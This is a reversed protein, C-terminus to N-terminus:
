VSWGSVGLIEEFSFIFFGLLLQECCNSIQMLMLKRCWLQCGFFGELFSFFFSPPAFRKAAVHSGVLHCVNQSFGLGRLFEAGIMEHGVRGLNETSNKLTM